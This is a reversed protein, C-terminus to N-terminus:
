LHLGPPQHLPFLGLLGIVAPYPRLGYSPWQFTNHRPNWLAGLPALQGYIIHRSWNAGVQSWAPNGFGDLLLTLSMTTVPIQSSTRQTIHVIWLMAM